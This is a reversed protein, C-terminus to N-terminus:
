GKRVRWGIAALGFLGSGLLLLTAPAPTTATVQMMMAPGSTIVKGGSAWGVGLGGYDYTYGYTGQFGVGSGVLSYTFGWVFASDYSAKLGVWYTSNAALTIGTATFTALGFSTTPMLGSLTLNPGIQTDPKGNYVYQNLLTPPSPQPFSYSTSNHTYIAVQATGITTMRMWLTVSDLLYSSGGTGFSGGVWNTGTASFYWTPSQGLNDSLVIPTGAAPLVLGGLLMMLGAVLAIITHNRSRKM